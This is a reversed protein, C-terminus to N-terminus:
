IEGAGNVVILVTKKAAWHKRGTGDVCDLPDVFRAAGSCGALPFCLPFLM